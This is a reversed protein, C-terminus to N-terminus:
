WTTRPRPAPRPAGRRRADHGEAATKARHCQLCLAWANAVSHDVRVSLPTRHDVQLRGRHGCQECKGGARRLVIQRTRIFQPDKYRNRDQQRKVPDSAWPM